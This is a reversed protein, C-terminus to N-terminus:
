ELGRPDVNTALMHMKKVMSPAHQGHKNGITMLGM